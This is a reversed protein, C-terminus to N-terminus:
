RQSHGRDGVKKAARGVSYHLFFDSSREHNQGTYQDTKGFGVGVGMGAAVWYYILRRVARGSMRNQRVIPLPSPVTDVSAM